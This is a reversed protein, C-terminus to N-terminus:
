GLYDAGVQAGDLWFVDWWVELKLYVVAGEVPQVLLITEVEDV